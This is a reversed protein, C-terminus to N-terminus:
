FTGPRCFVQGIELELVTGVELKDFQFNSYVALFLEIKHVLIAVTTHTFSKKTACFDLKKRTVHPSTPRPKFLTLIQSDSDSSHGIEEM